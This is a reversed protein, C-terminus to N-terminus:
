PNEHPPIREQIILSHSKSVNSKSVISRSVNSKSVISESVKSKSVISESVKSKSDKSGFVALSFFAIVM